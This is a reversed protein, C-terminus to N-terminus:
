KASTAIGRIRWLTWGVQSAFVFFDGTMFRVEVCNGGIIMNTRSSEYIMFLVFVYVHFMFFTFSHMFYTPDLRFVVFNYHALLFLSPVHQYRSSKYENWWKPANMNFSVKPAFLTFHRAFQLKGIGGHATRYAHELLTWLQLGQCLM